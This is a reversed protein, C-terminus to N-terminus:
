NLTVAQIDAKGPGISVTVPFSVHHGRMGVADDHISFSFTYVGGVKLVKDDLPHGTDLKRRMVVTYKGDELVGKAYDVDAASGKASATDLLHAPLLDGEKIKGADFPVTNQGVILHKPKAPDALDAETLASFGM